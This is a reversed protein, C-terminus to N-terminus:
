LDNAFQDAAASVIVMGADAAGAGAKIKKKDALSNFFLGNKACNARVSWFKSM